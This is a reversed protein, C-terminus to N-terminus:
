SYRIIAVNLIVCGVEANLDTKINLSCVSADDADSCISELILTLKRNM